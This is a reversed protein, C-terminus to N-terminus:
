IEDDSIGGKIGPQHRPKSENHPMPSRTIVPQSAIPKGPTRNGARPKKSRKTALHAKLTSVSCAFGQEAMFTALQQYTMGKARAQILKPKLRQVLSKLSPAPAPRQALWQDLANTFRSDDVSPDHPPKPM